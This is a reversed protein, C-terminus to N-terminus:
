HATFQIRVTTQLCYVRQPNIIYYRFSLPPRSVPSRGLKMTWKNVQQWRANQLSLPGTLLYVFHKPQQQSLLGGTLSTAPILGSM